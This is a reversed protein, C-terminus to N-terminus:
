EPLSNSEAPESAAAQQTPTEAPEEPRQEPQEVLYFCARWTHYAIRENWRMADLLMLASNPSWDGSATDRLIQPRDAHRLASLRHSFTEVTRLWLLDDDARLGVSALELTQRALEVSPQLRPDTLMQQIGRPPHYRSQLRLLHDMAHLLELRRQSISQHDSNAPIQQSFEKIQELAQVVLEYRQDDQATAQRRLQHNLVVCLEGTTEKLARRAAELAIPPTHLLTRDLHRTLQPGRDPLLHEIFAAYRRVWPLFIVVGLLTFATHFAALSVASSDLWHRQQAVALGWLFWPLLSVALLGTGLTFLIQALATRQAPVNGGLAALAGTVTTGISAGIVLSSAQEFSIAGSHLATLTTAVAASSSQMVVTLVIGVLMMFLHGLLGSTPLNSLPLTAALGEMGLQLTDIGVFIIGFGAIALGISKGRGRSLMRLFTGIGILPLSYLGLNVKLGLTAVIWGTGTTGLSAGFVIGLAQPFTLLGSSVFGIVMVTTASSSQVILTALMGSLFATFPTGTFRMLAQRLSEGASAKLGDTLLTMGLLFLGIGGLLRFLM